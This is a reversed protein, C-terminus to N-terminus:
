LEYTDINEIKKSFKNIYDASTKSLKINNDEKFTKAIYYLLIETNVSM